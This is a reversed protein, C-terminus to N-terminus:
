ILYIVIGAINVPAFVVSEYNNPSTTILAKEMALTLKLIGSSIIKDIFQEYITTGRLQTLNTSFIPNSQGEKNMQVFGGSKEDPFYLQGNLFPIITSIVIIKSPWM